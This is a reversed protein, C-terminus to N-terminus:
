FKQRFCKENHSTKLSINDYIYGVDEHSNGTIRTMNQGKSAPIIKKKFKLVNQIYFTFLVPVLYTLIIFFSCKSSFFRLTYVM